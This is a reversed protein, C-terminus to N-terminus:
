VWLPVVVEPEGAVGEEEEEREEDVEEGARGRGGAGDGREGGRLEAEGLRLLAERGRAEHVGRHLPLGRQAGGRRLPPLALARLALERARVLAHATRRLLKPLANLLARLARPPPPPRPHPLHHPLHHLRKRQARGSSDNALRISLARNTTPSAHACTYM